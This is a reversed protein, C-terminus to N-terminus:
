DLHWKSFIYLKPTAIQPKCPAKRQKNTTRIDTLYRTRIPADVRVFATYALKDNNTATYASPCYPPTLAFKARLQQTRPTKAQVMQSRPHQRWAVRPRDAKPDAGERVLRVGTALRQVGRNCCRLAIRYCRDYTLGRQNESVICSHSGTPFPRASQTAGYERPSRRWTLAGVSRRCLATRLWGAWARQFGSGGGPTPCFSGAAAVDSAWLFKCRARVKERLLPLGSNMGATANRSEVFM